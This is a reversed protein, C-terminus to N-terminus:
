QTELVIVLMTELAFGTLKVMTMELGIELCQKELVTVKVRGWQFGMKTAMMIVSEIVLLTLVMVPVRVDVRKQQDWLKVSKSALM